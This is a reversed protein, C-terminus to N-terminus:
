VSTRIQLTSAHIHRRLFLLHLSPQIASSHVSHFLQELRTTVPRDYSATRVTATPPVHLARCHSHQILPRCFHPLITHYLCSCSSLSIPLFPLPLIFIFSHHSISTSTSPRAQGRRGGSRGRKRCGEFNGLSSNIKTFVDCKGSNSQRRPGTTTTDHGAGRLLGILSFRGPSLRTRIALEIDREIGERM